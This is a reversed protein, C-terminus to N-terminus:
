FTWMSLSVILVIWCDRVIQFRDARYDNRDFFYNDDTCHNQVIQMNKPFQEWKIMNFGFSEENTQLTDTFTWFRDHVIKMYDSVCEYINPYVTECQKKMIGIPKVNNAIASNDRDYLLRDYVIRGLLQTMESLETVTSHTPINRSPNIM